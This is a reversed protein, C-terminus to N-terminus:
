KINILKKPISVDEKLPLTLTLVGNELAADISGANIKEDLSFSRKFSKPGFEHRIIKDTSTEIKAKHDYQITLIGKDIQLVIDEKQIGPVNLEMVYVNEKEFINVSPAYVINSPANFFEDFLNSFALPTQKLVTM